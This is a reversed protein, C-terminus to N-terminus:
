REVVYCLVRGNVHWRIQLPNTQRGPARTCVYGASEFGVLM